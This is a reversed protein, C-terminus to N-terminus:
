DGALAARLREGQGWLRLPPLEGEIRRVAGELRGIWEPQRACFCEGLDDDRLVVLDLGQRREDEGEETRFAFAILRQAAGRHWQNDPRARSGDGGDRQGVRAVALRWGGGINEM